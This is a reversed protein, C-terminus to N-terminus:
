KVLYEKEDLREHRLNESVCGAPTEFCTPCVKMTPLILPDEPEVISSVDLPRIMSKVYLLAEFKCNECEGTIGCTLFKM